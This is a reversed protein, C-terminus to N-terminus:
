KNAYIEFSIEIEDLILNDKLDEFFKGSNYKIEWETRDITFKEAKVILNDANLTTKIEFGVNKTIGKITLNGYAMQKGDIQEISTIEFKATPFNAVNFFDESKLHGVLKQNWEAETLDLNVISAMDIEFSGSAIKDNEVNLSGSKLLLTGEHFSAVKSGKWKLLSKEINVTYKVSSETSSKVDKENETKNTNSSCSSIILASILFLYLSLKKM